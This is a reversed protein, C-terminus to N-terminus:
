RVETAKSPQARKSRQFPARLRAEVWGRDIVIGYQGHMMAQGPDIALAKRYAALAAERRGLLDYLHGQWVWAAFRHLQSADSAAATKVFAALSEEDYGSDFLLLGLKFWFQSRPINLGVSKDFILRPNRGEHTWGLSEVLAMLEEATPKEPLALASERTFPTRLRAELWQRNVQFHFEGYGYSEGKDRALADQYHRLAQARNGRLDELLGLWAQGLYGFDPDAAGAVREFCDVAEAYRETEFLNRGLRYWLSATEVPVGRLARYVELSRAADLGWALSTAAEAPIEPLPKSILALRREPDLGVNKLKARSNFVVSDLVKTRDTLVTQETGDEFVARLPVPMAMTGLRRIGVETRYGDGQPRCDQSEIAYCLYTNGRVWPNFLWALNQNTEAECFRQFERWGLRQGGYVQLAKRYIREFEARGLVVELANLFAPGKSHVVLNNRDYLIRNEQGPTVDLTTDYYMGVAQIYNGMWETRRDPDYNRAIMYETDAYIGLCIWLWPPDDGDFVWESWYQHGIEHSTIHQWHQPSEGDQYTELGHIKVIGPAFPYGGWRGPGGPVISLFPYPYFGLWEKYFKIADVATDLCVAAAKGGKETSVTTILVGEAERTKAIEGKALYIGFSRIGQAEFRGSKEDRRGSVALGYGPPVEVGVSYSDHSPLGDWWLRPYWDNMSFGGDESFAELKLRFGAELTLAGGPPLPSPLRFFLPAPITPTAGERRPMLKVGGATVDLTQSGRLSWDLAITDIARLSGNRLEITERGEVFGANIDIRADIRYRSQPVDAPVFYGAAPRASELAVRTQALTASLCLFALVVGLIFRPRSNIKM